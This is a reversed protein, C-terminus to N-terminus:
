TCTVVLKCGCLYRFLFKTEQNIDSSSIWKAGDSSVFVFVQICNALLTSELMAKEGASCINDIIKLLRNLTTTKGVGPPGVLFVKLYRLDITDKDTM